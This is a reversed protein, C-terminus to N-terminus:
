FEVSNTPNGTRVAKFTIHAINLSTSINRGSLPVGAELLTIGGDEPFFV